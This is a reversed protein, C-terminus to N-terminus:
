MVILPLETHRTVIVSTLYNFIIHLSKLQITPSTFLKTYLYLQDIININTLRTWYFKTM